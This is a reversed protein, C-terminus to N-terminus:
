PTDSQWSAVDSNLGCMNKGDCSYPPESASDLTIPSKLYTCCPLLQPFSHAAHSNVIDMRHIAVLHFFIFALSERSNATLYHSPPHPLSPGVNPPFSASLLIIDLMLNWFGSNPGFLLCLLFPSPTTRTYVTTLPHYARRVDGNIGPIWNLVLHSTMIITM